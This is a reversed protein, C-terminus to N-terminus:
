AKNWGLTQQLGEPLLVRPAWGTASNLALNDCVWNSHSLERVKGPTLMPAYGFARSALLNLAAALRLLV